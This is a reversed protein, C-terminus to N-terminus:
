SLLALRDFSQAASDKDVFLVARPHRRLVTSPYKESIGDFLTHKVAAAKNPGPVMCFVYSAQMLAPVTLTLAHTPVQAFTEFCGDNVQQQRCAYDLDVVKVLQPDSFDAVHPDNFAIHTNEGIGMNVIDVGKRLLTAYRECEQQIDPANGNLYHVSRFPVKSFIRERLFNGFGQPATAELGIYEDMHFANIREWEISADAALAELFEQQSPAAAFVINLTEKEQLLLRIRDAAMAAAAEGMQQRTEYLHVQLNDVQKM